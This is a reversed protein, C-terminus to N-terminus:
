GKAVAPANRRAAIWCASHARAIVERTMALTIGAGAIETADM